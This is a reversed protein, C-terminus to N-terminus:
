LDALDLLFTYSALLIITALITNIIISKAKKIRSEDWASTIYYYAAISLFFFATPPVFFLTLDALNKFINTAQSIKLDFAFNKWAEIVWVFVLALISYVVKNKAEKVREERWRSYLLKIAEYMIVVIALTLIIVELFWIIDDGFIYWFNEFDFFLNSEWSKDLYEENNILDWLEWYKQKHFAMYLSGPINIFLLAVIAYWLQKKSKSLDEDNDWMSWIMQWWTYVIFIVMLWELVLKVISLIKFANTNISNVINEEVHINTSVRGLVNNYNWPINFQAFLDNSYILTLLLIWTLFIKLLKTKM